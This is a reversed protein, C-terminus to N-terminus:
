EASGATGGYPSSLVTVEGPLVTRGVSVEWGSDRSWRELGLLRGDDSRYDVYDVPGEPPLGTTGKSTYRATGREQERYVVGDIEIEPDDSVPVGPRRRWWTIIVEGEDEEVGFWSGDAGGDLLHEFWRFPGEAIVLSGRIVHNVGGHSIVAGPGLSDPAFRRYTDDDLLPDRYAPGTDGIDEKSPTARRRLWFAVAIAVAAIVLLLVIVSAPDM